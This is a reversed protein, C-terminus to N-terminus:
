FGVYLGQGQITGIYGRCDRLNGNEKGNERHLGLIGVFTKWHRKWEKM